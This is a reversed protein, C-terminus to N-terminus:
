LGLERKVAQSSYTGAARQVRRTALHIDELDELHEFIAQRALFTKTRGTLKAIRELRKEIQANLRVTLMADFQWRWCTIALPIDSM